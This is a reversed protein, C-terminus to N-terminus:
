QEYANLGSIERGHTLKHLLPALDEVLALEKQTRAKWGLELPALLDTLAEGDFIMRRIISDVFTQLSAAGLGHKEAIAALAKANKEAKFSAYGDRIKKESLGEGMKLTNIYAAIDEREDMFKADSTILGILQDKSM